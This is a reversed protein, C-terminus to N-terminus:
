TVHPQRCCARAVCAPVTSASIAGGGGGAARVTGCCVGARRVENEQIYEELRAVLEAKKGAVAQGRKKLEEKLKVVTLGAVWDTGPM